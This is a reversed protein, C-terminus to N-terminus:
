RTWRVLGCPGERLWSSMSRPHAVSRPQSMGVANMLRHTEPEPWAMLPVHRVRTVELGEEEFRIPFSMKVGAVEAMRFHM